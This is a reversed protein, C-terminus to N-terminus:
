PTKEAAPSDLPTLLEIRGPCVGLLLKKGEYSAVVLFQRSGLSKTEDIVLKKVTRSPLQIKKGKLFLYGGAGALLLIGLLTSAGVGGSTASPAPSAQTGFPGLVHDDAARAASASFALALGALLILGGRRM